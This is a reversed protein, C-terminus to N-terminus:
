SLSATIEYKLEGTPWPKISVPTHGTKRKAAQVVGSLVKQVHGADNYSPNDPRFQFSAFYPCVSGDGTRLIVPEAVSELHNDKAAALFASIVEECFARDSAPVQLLMEFQLKIKMTEPEDGM